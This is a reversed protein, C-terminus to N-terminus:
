LRYRDKKEVLTEMLSLQFKVAGRKTLVVSGPPIESIKATQLAM